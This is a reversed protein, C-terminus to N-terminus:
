PTTSIIEFKKALKRMQACHAALVASSMRSIETPQVRAGTSVTDAFYIDDDAVNKKIFADVKSNDFHINCAEESGLLSGMSLALAVNDRSGPAAHVSTSTILVLIAISKALKHM